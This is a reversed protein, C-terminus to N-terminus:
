GFNPGALQGGDVVFPAGTAFSSDDGVLFLAARAIEEPRAMRPIPFGGYFADKDLSDWEPGNAMATDVGGPHLSNVRIKDPGLEIAACRAMLQNAAKSASYAAAGGAGTMSAISSMVVISGGGNARMSPIVAQIGLVAGIVNVDFARQFDAVALKEIPGIVMIGANTVLRTPPGFAAECDAVLSTWDPESRVDLRRFIVSGALEDALSQGEQELLDGVAVKAGEAVFLRVIAEGIGRAGGSVVAVKGALRGYGDRPVSV